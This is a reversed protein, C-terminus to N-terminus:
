ASWTGTGPATTRGFDTDRPATPPTTPAVAPVDGATEIDLGTISPAAQFPVNAYSLEGTTYGRSPPAWQNGDSGDVAKAARAIRGAAFGAGACLALFAGPRRRAFRALDDSVAALGDQELKDALGTLRTSASRIMEGPRGADSPRGDGLAQLQGSLTRLGGAARRSQTDAQAMVEGRADAMLGRAHGWADGALEGTQHATESAVHRAGESVATAAEPRETMAM